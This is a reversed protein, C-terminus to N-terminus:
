VGPFYQRIIQAVGFDDNSPAEFRALDKVSQVANAMAYSYYVSTLLEADNPYDGFAMCNEPMWGFKKQVFRMATGKNVDPHMFDLWNKAALASKLVKSFPTMTDVCLKADEEHFIAVKIVSDHNDKVAQLPDASFIRSSYYLSSNYDALEDPTKLYAAKTGCLLVTTGPISDATNYLDALIHEPIPLTFIIEKGKAVLSGNEAIFMMKDAVDAFLNQLNLFQRGSAAAFCIGQEHLKRVIDFFGPPLEKKSNLLTGDMDAAILKIDM